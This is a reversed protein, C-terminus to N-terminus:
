PQSHEKEECKVPKAPHAAAGVQDIVFRVDVVADPCNRVREVGSGTFDVPLLDRHADIFKSPYGADYIKGESL